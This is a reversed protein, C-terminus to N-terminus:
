QVTLTLVEVNSRNGDTDTVYYTVEYTGPAYSSEAGSVQIRKSLTEEDDIDDTISDIYRIYRFTDGSNITATNGTLTLVPAEPNGSEPETEEAPETQATQQGSAATEEEAAQSEESGNEQIVTEAASDEQFKATGEARGVNGSKDMAIYTVRVTGDGLNIVSEVTVRVQGDKEDRAEVGELLSTRHEGDFVREMESVTIVPPEKDRRLYVFICAALLGVAVIALFVTLGKKKM